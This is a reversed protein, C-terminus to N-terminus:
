NWCWWPRYIIRITDSGLFYQGPERLYGFVQLQVSGNTTIAKLVDDRNFFAIVRTRRYCRGRNQIVYQRVAEIGGPYLILPTVNDIQDKTIGAPLYIWATIMRPLHIKRNIVRPWLWLRAKNRVAEYAGMDIRGGDVRPNGDLDTENPEPIFNPDGTDICPSVPLLHYDGDLWVASPENPEVILNSDNIDVWYGPEIFCPDADINGIGPWGGEVNGWNITVSCQPETSIPNQGDRVICNTMKVTSQSEGSWHHCALAGGYKASNGTFTCNTINAHSGHRVYVAGGYEGGMNNSVWNGSFICNTLKPNCRYYSCIGGGYEFSDNSSFFCNTLTPSSIYNYMGGGHMLVAENKIFSCNVLVPNSNSNHMGAGSGGGPPSPTGWWGANCKFICNTLRPSSRENGMGGGRKAFNKIFTCNTVTPSSRYNYMGGGIDEGSWPPGNANGGTITFGDLVATEDCDVCTVVHFSNEARTPENLLDCPDTVEIDNGKLDGSLITEYIEIDRANPDPEGFGAYGGYIAVGSRLVFTPEQNQFIPGKDPRYTGEAVWIEARVKYVFQIAMLADYLHNYANTWSSGDNLGNADADVYYINPENVSAMYEPDLNAADIRNINTCDDSDLAISTFSDVCENSGITQTNLLSSALASSVLWPCAWLLISLVLWNKLNTKKAM